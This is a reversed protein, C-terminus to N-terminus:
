PGSASSSRASSDDHSTAAARVFGRWKDSSCFSWRNDSAGRAIAVEAGKHGTILSGTELALRSEM